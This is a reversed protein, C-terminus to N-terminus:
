NNNYVDNIFFSSAWGELFIYADKYTKFELNKIIKSSDKCYFTLLINNTIISKNLTINATKNKNITTINKILEMKNM